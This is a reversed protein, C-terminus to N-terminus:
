VGERERLVSTPPEHHFVQAPVHMLTDDPILQVGQVNTDLSDRLQTGARAVLVWGIVTM